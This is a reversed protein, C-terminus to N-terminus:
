PASRFDPVFSEFMAFPLVRYDDDVAFFDTKESPYQDWSYVDFEVHQRSNFFRHDALSDCECDDFIRKWTEHAHPKFRVRFVPRTDFNIYRNKGSGLIPRASM